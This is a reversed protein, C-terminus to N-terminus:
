QPSHISLWVSCMKMSWAGSKRPTGLATSSAFISGASTSVASRSFFIPLSTIRTTPPRSTCGILTRTPPQYLAGLRASRSRM